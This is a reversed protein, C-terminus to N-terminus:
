NGKREVAAAQPLVRSVQDTGVPPESAPLIQSEIAPNDRIPDKVAINGFAGDAAQFLKEMETGVANQLNNGFLGEPNAYEKQVLSVNLMSAVQQAAYWVTGLKTSYSARDVVIILLLQSGINILYLDGTSSERYILSSTERKGDLALGAENLGAFCGGLLPIIRDLPMDDLNGSRAICNGEVDALMVCRAGVELRLRKLTWDVQQHRSDSLILIGRRSYDQEVLAARVVERFHDIALPKILYRYTQLRRSEAEVGENGYATMLITRAHPQLTQVAQLLQLGDMGSMKYDTIVLEFTREKLQAIAQAGSSATVVHVEDGLMKLSSKLVALIAAEDDVILIWKETM